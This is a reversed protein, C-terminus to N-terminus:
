EKVSHLQNKPSTIAETAQKKFPKAIDAQFSSSALASCVILSCLVLVNGQPIGEGKCNVLRVMWFLLLLYRGLLIIWLSSKLHLFSEFWENWIWMIKKQTGPTSREPGCYFFVQVPPNGSDRPHPWILVEVLSLSFFLNHTQSPTLCLNLPCVLM